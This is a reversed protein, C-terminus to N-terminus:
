WVRVPVPAAAAQELLLPLIRRVHGPRRYTAMALVATTM